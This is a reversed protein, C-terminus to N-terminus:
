LSNWFVELQVFSFNAVFSLLQIIGTTQVVTAKLLNILSFKCELVFLISVCSSLFHGFMELSICYVCLFVLQVWLPFVDM